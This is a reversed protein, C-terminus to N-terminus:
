SDLSALDYSNTIGFGEKEGGRGERGVGLTVTKSVSYFPLPPTCMGAEAPALSAIAGM